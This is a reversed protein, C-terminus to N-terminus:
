IFVIMKSSVLYDLENWGQEKTTGRRGAFQYWGIFPYNHAENLDEIYDNVRVYARCLTVRDNSSLQFKKIDHDAPRPLISSITISM